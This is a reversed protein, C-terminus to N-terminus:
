KKTKCSVSDIRNKLSNIEISTQELSQDIKKLRNSLNEILKDVYQKSTFNGTDKQPRTQKIINQDEVADNMKRKKNVHIGFKDVNM